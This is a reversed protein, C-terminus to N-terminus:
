SKGWVHFEIEYNKKATAMNPNCGEKHNVVLVLSCVMKRCPKMKCVALLNDTNGTYDTLGVITAVRIMLVDSYKTM